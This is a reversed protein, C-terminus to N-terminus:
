PRPHGTISNQERVMLTDTRLACFAAGIACRCMRSSPVKVNRQLGLFLFMPRPVHVITARTRHSLPRSPDVNKTRAVLRIVM